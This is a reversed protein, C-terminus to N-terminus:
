PQHHKKPSPLFLMTANISKKLEKIEGKWTKGSLLTDWMNKYFEPPTDPHKVISHDCGILEKKTYGSIKCFAQSVDTIIGNKDTTSIIM